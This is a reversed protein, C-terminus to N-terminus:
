CEELELAPNISSGTL